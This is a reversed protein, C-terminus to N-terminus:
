SCHMAQLSPFSPRGPEAPFARTSMDAAVVGPSPNEWWTVVPNEMQQDRQQSILSKKNEKRKKEKKKEKQGHSTIRPQLIERDGLRIYSIFNFGVLSMTIDNKLDKFQQCNVKRKEGKLNRKYNGTANNGTYKDQSSLLLTQTMKDMFQLM